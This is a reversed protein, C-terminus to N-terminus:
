ESGYNSKRGSKITDIFGVIRSKSLSQYQKIKDKSYNKISLPWSIYKDSLVECERLLTIIRDSMSINDLIRDYIYIDKNFILSIATGHFSDTITAFANHILWVFESPGIYKKYEDSMVDIIPLNCIEKPIIGKIESDKDGLFYSFIYKSPVEFKPKAEIREWKKQSLYLTPDSLLIIDKNILPSLLGISTRERVSIYDVHKLKESIDLAQQESLESVAVSAALSFVKTQLTNIGFDINMARGINPNWIQDSGLCSYQFDKNKLPALYTNTISFRSINLYKKGFHIFRWKNSDRHIIREFRYNNLFNFCGLVNYLIIKITNTKYNRITIPSFGNEKLIQEVAYNQLKNGYNDNTFITFVAVKNNLYKGKREM